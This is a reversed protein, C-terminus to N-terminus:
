PQRSLYTTSLFCVYFSQERCLTDLCHAGLCISRPSFISSMNGSILTRFFEMRWFFILLWGLPTCSIKFCDIQNEEFDNRGKQALLFEDSAIQESGKEGILRKKTACFYLFKMSIPRLRLRLSQSIVCGIRLYVDNDTGAFLKDSTKIQISYIVEEVASTVTGM